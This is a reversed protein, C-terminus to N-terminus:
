GFLREDWWVPIELGTRIRAFDPHGANFVFNREMRAVVSPVVLLASRKENYWVRGFRRATEGDMAAWGELRDPNVVEYSIGAPVTIEIFHQRRPLAGNYHVLKELMATSYHESAYIVQAGAEHWRGSARRAGGDDWIPFDGEPDGIRYASLPESLRRVSM